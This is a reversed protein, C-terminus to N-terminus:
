NYERPQTSGTGPGSSRPFDPPAPFRVLAESFFVKFFWLSYVLGFKGRIIVLETGKTRSRVIGVSPGGSTPSTLALKQPIPPVAHDACRNGV